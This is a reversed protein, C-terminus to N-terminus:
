GGLIGINKKIAQWFHFSLNPEVKRLLAFDILVIL